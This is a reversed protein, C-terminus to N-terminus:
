MKQRHGVFFISPKYPTILMYMYKCVSALWDPNVSNRAPPSKTMQQYGKCVTQVWDTQICVTQCESLTGSHIKHFFIFKLFSNLLRCCFHSFSGMMCLTLISIEPNLMTLTRMKLFKLSFAEKLNILFRFTM